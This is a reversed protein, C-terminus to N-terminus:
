VARLVEKARNLATESLFLFKKRIQLELIAKRVFEPNLSDLAELAKVVEAKYQRLAGVILASHEEGAAAIDFIDRPQPISGRHIIKKTTIEPITKLLINQGEVMRKRTPQATKSEDVIFDIEGMGFVFKLFRAGDGTYDIPHIEFQFDNKRPDLFSLLQPDRLFIDIDHSERHDIQLMLATGGGFTWYDIILDRSNVQRILDRAIRFLRVWDSQNASESM